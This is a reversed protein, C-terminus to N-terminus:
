ARPGQRRRRPPAVQRDVGREGREKERGGAAAHAPVERREKPVRRLRARQDRACAPRGLAANTPSDGFLRALERQLADIGETQGLRAMSNELHLAFEAIKERRAATFGDCFHENPDTPNVLVSGLATMARLGRAIELVATAVSQHGTYAHGAVTTIVISRPADDHTKFMEDRARKVLQVAIVLPTKDDVKQLAPLPEVSGDLRIRGKVLVEMRKKFWAIFGKPNSPSWDKLKRDPIVVGTEPRTPDTMAPIVDMHFDGSFNLSVCRKKFSLMPRYVLSSHLRNYVSAYLEEATLACPVVECVFDLDYEVHDRPKNTTGLAMSGQPYIRPKLHALASGEAGLFNAVAEYHKTAKEYQTPTLQQAAAVEALLLELDASFPPIPPIATM